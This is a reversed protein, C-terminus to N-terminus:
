LLRKELDGLNKLLDNNKIKEKIWYYHERAHLYHILLHKHKYNDMLKMYELCSRYKQIDNM